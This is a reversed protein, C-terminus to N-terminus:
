RALLWLALTLREELAAFELSSRAGMHAVADRMATRAQTSVGPLALARQAEARVSANAFFATDSELAAIRASELWSGLAVQDRPMVRSAKHASAVDDLNVWDWAENQVRRFEWAAGGGLPTGSFLETLEGAYRFVHESELRVAARAKRDIPWNVYPIDHFVAWVAIQVGPWAAYGAKKRSLAATELDVMRAGVRIAAIEGSVSRSSDPIWGHALLVPIGADPTTLYTLYDTAAPPPPPPPASYRRILLVAASMALLVLVAARWSLWEARSQTTIGLAIRPRVREPVPGVPALVM